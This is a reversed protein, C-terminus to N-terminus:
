KYIYPDSKKGAKIKKRFALELRIRDYILKIFNM